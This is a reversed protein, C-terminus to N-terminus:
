LNDNTIKNSSNHLNILTRVENINFTREIGDAFMNVCTITSDGSVYPLTRFLSGEFM